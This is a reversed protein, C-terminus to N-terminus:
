NETLNKSFRYRGMALYLFVTLGMLATMGMLAPDYTGLRDYCLGMLPPAVLMGFATFPAQVGVISGFNKLGFYRLLFFSAMPVKAGGAFGMLVISAFLIMMGTASSNLLLLGVLAVTSLVAFPAAIRGSTSRDLSWGGILTGVAMAVNMTFVQGAAAEPAIGKGMMYPVMHQMLGMAPIIAFVGAMTVLWFTRERLTDGVSLGPIEQATPAGGTTSAVMPPPDPESLWFLLLPVTALIILGMGVFTGRWGYHSLLWMIIPVAFAGALRSEVGFIAMAKGRNETFLAGMVKSYGVATSGMAGLVAFGLLYQWMAGTQLSLLMTMLGVLVTGGIVIKRVGLKDILRGLVPASFMGGLMMASLGLSFATRSWGFEQTMPLLLLAQATFPLITSGFLTGFVIATAVRMKRPSFDSERVPVTNEM